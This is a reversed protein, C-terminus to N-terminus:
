HTVGSKQSHASGHTDILQGLAQANKADDPLSELHKQYEEKTLRGMQMHIEVLRSDYKSNSRAKKLSLSM